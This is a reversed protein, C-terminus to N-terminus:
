DARQATLFLAKALTTFFNQYAVPEDVPKNHFEANARVLVRKNDRLQVTVMMRFDRPVDRDLVFKRASITGLMADAQEIMFGTDQLADIIARLVLQKDNTEFVRTQMSRNKLQAEAGGLVSEPSPSACAALAGIISLILVVHLEQSGNM